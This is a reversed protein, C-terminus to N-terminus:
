EARRGVVMSYTGADPIHAFDKRSEVITFGAVTMEQAILVPDIHHKAIQQARTAEDPAPSPEAIVLRGSPKLADRIHRLMDYCKPMEHYANLIVVADLAGM